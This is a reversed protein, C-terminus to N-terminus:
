LLYNTLVCVFKGWVFNGYIIMKKKRSELRNAIIPSSVCLNVEYLIAM